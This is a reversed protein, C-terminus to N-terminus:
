HRGAKEFVEELSFTEIMKTWLDYAPDNEKIIIFGMQGNEGRIVKMFYYNGEERSETSNIKKAYLYEENDYIFSYGSLTPKGNLKFTKKGSFNLIEKCSSDDM